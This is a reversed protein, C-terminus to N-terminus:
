QVWVKQVAKGRETHIYLLYIGEALGATQVAHKSANVLEANYVLKGSVDTLLVRTFPANGAEITLVDRVPNPYITLGLAAPEEIGVNCGVIPTFECTGNNCSDTTCSDADDCVIAAFDCADNVCTDTTCADGDNCVLTDCVNTGGGTATFTGTMGMASHINCQYSYTGAETVRYEFSTTTSNLPSNWTAAGSPVSTSTTTHTGSGWEWRITDGVTVNPINAPNFVLGSTAVIHKTAQANLLFVILLVCTSCLHKM